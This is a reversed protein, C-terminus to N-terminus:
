SQQLIKTLTRIVQSGKGKATFDECTCLTWNKPGQDCPRVHERESDILLEAYAQLFICWVRYQFQMILQRSLGERM